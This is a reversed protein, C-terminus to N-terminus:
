ITALETAVWWAVLRRRDLRGGGAAAAAAEAEKGGGGLAWGGDGLGLAWDRTSDLLTRAERSFLGPRRKQRNTWPSIPQTLLPIPLNATTTTPSIKTKGRAHMHYPFIHPTLKSIRNPNSRIKKNANEWKSQAILSSSLKQKNSESAMQYQDKLHCYKKGFKTVNRWLILKWMTYPKSLLEHDVMTLSELNLQIIYM